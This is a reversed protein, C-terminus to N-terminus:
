YVLSLSETWPKYVKSNHTRVQIILYLLSFPSSMICQGQSFCLSCPFRDGVKCFVLELICNQRHIVKCSATLYHCPASVTTHRIHCLLTTNYIATPTTPYTPPSAAIGLGHHAPVQPSFSFMLWLDVSPGIFLVFECIYQPENFLDLFHKLYSHNRTFM